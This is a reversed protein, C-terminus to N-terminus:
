DGALIEGLGSECVARIDEPRLKRDAPILAAERLTDSVSAFLRVRVETIRKRQAPTLTGRVKTLWIEELDPLSGGFLQITDHIYLVDQARKRPTRNAHILLKQVAFSVPNAVQVEIPSEIYKSDGGGIPLRWPAVLLVELHRLKQAVIGARAESRWTRM